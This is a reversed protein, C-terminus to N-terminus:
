GPGDVVGRWEHLGALPVDPYANRECQSLVGCAPRRDGDSERPADQDDLLTAVLITAPDSDVTGSANSVRIFYRTTNTLPPTTYNSSIAGDILAYGTGGTSVYWQFSLGSGAAGVSLTATQGSTITQSQPEAIIM